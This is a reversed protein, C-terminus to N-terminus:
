FTHSYLYGVGLMLGCGIRRRPYSIVSFILIDSYEISAGLSGLPILRCNGVTTVQTTGVKNAGEREIETGVEMSTSGTMFYVVQM